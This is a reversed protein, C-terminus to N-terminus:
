GVRDEISVSYLNLYKGWENPMTHRKVVVWPIFSPRNPRRLLKMSAEEPTRNRKRFNCRSCCAILNEWTSKGGRSRPYIHDVTMESGGQEDCYGCRYDDRLLVHKKSLVVRKFPRVVYYLMRIVTPLKIAFVEKTLANGASRLLKNKFELIEAKREYILQVARQLDVVDLPENSNNLVLCTM